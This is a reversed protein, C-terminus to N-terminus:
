AMSRDKWAGSSGKRTNVFVVCAGVIVGLLFLKHWMSLGEQSSVPADLLKDKVETVLEPPSLKPTKPQTM